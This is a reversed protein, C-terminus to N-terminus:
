NRRKWGKRIASVWYRNDKKCDWSGPELSQGCPAKSQAYPTTGQSACRGSSHATEQTTRRVGSESNSVTQYRQKRGLRAKMARLFSTTEEYKTYTNSEMRGVFTPDVYSFSSVWSSEGGYYNTPPHQFISDPTSPAYCPLLSPNASEKPLLSSRCASYHSGNPTASNPSLTAMPAIIGLSRMLSADSPEMHTVKKNNTSASIGLMFPSCTSPNTITKCSPNTGSTAAGSLGNIGSRATNVDPLTQWLNNKFADAWTTFPASFKSPLCVQQFHRNLNTFHAYLSPSSTPDRSAADAAWNQDGPLYAASVRINFRIELLAILQLVHQAVINPSTLRNNWAVASQNDIWIRVHQTERTHTSWQHGWLILAYLVNLLERTNISTARLESDWQGCVYERTSPNIAAYGHDSSDMFVNISASAPLARFFELPIGNMAGSDLLKLLWESDSRLEQTIPATTFQKAYSAALQLHFLFPRTSRYCQGVHRLSGLVCNLQHATAKDQTLISRLRSIAKSVKNPPMRVIGQHLDWDLGLAQQHSSWPQIKSAKIGYPGFVSTISERLALEAERLRYPHSAEILVHDDVWEFVFYPDRLLEGLVSDGFVDAVGSRKQSLIFSVARGFLGYFGPSSRCGFTAAMDICVAARAPLTGSQLWCFDEHMPINRFAENVDVLMMVLNYGPFKEKLYLIRQAIYQMPFFSIAPIDEKHLCDNVSGGPPYSFDHILRMEELPDKDKKEVAAYPCTQVYWNAPLPKEMVLIRNQDQGTRLSKCIVNENNSGSRHNRVFSTQRPPFKTWPPIMGEKAIQVVADRFPYGILLDQLRAPQLAKNPRNDSITQGRILRVFAPLTSKMHRALTSYARQKPQDFLFSRGHRHAYPQNSDYEIGYLQM